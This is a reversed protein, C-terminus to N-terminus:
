FVFSAVSSKVKSIQFTGTAFGTLAWKEMLDRGIYISHIFPNKKM